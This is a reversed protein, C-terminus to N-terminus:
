LNGASGSVSDTRTGVNEVVRCRKVVAQYITGRYAANNSVICDELTATSATASLFASGLGNNSYDGTGVGRGGTLTFGRLVADSQAYVCRVANTGTGYTANDIQDGTAAAGVIFTNKAGDTSEVTVGSKVVVRAAIKSTATQAGEAAGYMGPAVRITDGDIALAMAAKITAKARTPSTGDNTDSGGDQAVHWVNWDNWVAGLRMKGGHLAPMRGDIDSTMVRRAQSGIDTEYSDKDLAPSHAGLRYDHASADAFRPDDLFKNM